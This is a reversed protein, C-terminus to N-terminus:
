WTYSDQLYPATIGFVSHVENDPFFGGVIFDCEDRQIM